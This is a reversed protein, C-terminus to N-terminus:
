KKKKTEKIERVELKKNALLVDVVPGSIETGPKLGMVESKLFYKKM